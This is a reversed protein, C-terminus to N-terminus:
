DVSDLGEERDRDEELSDGYEGMQILCDELEVLDAEAEIEAENLKLQVDYKGKIKRIIRENIYIYQLKDVRSSTLRNRLKNHVLNLISFARESPVSSSPTNM